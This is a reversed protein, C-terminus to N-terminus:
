WSIDYFSEDGKVLKEFIANYESILFEKDLSKPDFHTAIQKTVHAIFDLPLRAKYERVYYIHSGDWMYTGDSRTESPFAHHRNLPDPICSLWADVVIGSSMYNAILTADKKSLVNANQVLSISGSCNFGPDELYYPLVKM